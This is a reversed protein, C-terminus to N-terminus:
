LSHSINDHYKTGSGSQFHFIKWWRHGLWNICGNCKRKRQSLSRLMQLLTKPYSAPYQNLNINLKEEADKMGDELQVNRHRNIKKKMKLFNSNYKMSTEPPNVAAALRFFVLGSRLTSKAIPPHFSPPPKM